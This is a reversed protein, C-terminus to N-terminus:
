LEGGSVQALELGSSQTVFVAGRRCLQFDFFPTNMTEDIYAKYVLKMKCMNFRCNSKKDGKVPKDCGMVLCVVWDPINKWMESQVSFCKVDSVRVTKELKGFVGWWRIGALKAGSWSKRQKTLYKALYNSAKEGSIKKVHVRGWGHRKCIARVKCVHIFSTTVAHVHLGHGKPHLEFVRVGSFGVSRKLERCLDQWMQAGKYPHYEYPLTFTWFKLNGSEALLELNQQLALKSKFTSM